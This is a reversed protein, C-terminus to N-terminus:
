LCILDKIQEFLATGIGSVKTIDEISNFAGEKNRYSVIRNALVSGIGPLSDLKAVNAKNISVKEVDQITSSIYYSSNNTLLMDRNYASADAKDTVGGALMILYALDSGKTVTYKGPNKVEGNIYVEYYSSDSEEYVSQNVGSFDITDLKRNIVDLTVLYVITFVIMVILTKM